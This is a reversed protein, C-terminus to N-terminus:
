KKGLVKRTSKKIDKVEFDTNLINVILDEISSSIGKLSIKSDYQCRFQVDLASTDDDLEFFNNENVNIGAFEDLVLKKTARALQRDRFIVFRAQDGAITMQSLAIINHLYANTFLWLEDCEAIVPHSVNMGFYLLAFETDVVDTSANRYFQIGNYETDLNGGKYGPITYMVDAFPSYDIVTFTYGLDNLVNGLLHVIEFSEVGVFGFFKSNM